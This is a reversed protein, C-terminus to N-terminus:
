FDYEALRRAIKLYTEQGWDAFGMNLAWLIVRCNEKTYGKTSDKRDISPTYPNRNGSTEFVFPLGTIECIGRELKAILWEKDLSYEVNKKRSRLRAASLMSAARGKASEFYARTREVYEQPNDRRWQRTRGNILERHREYYRRHYERKALSVAM